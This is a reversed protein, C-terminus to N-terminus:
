LPLSGEFGSFNHVRTACARSTLEQYVKATNKSNDTNDHKYNTERQLVLILIFHDLLMTFVEVPLVLENIALSDIGVSTSFCM